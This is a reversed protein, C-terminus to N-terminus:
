WLALESCQQSWFKERGAQDLKPCDSVTHGVEKCNYCTIKGREIETQTFAVGAGAAADGSAADHTNEPKFQELLKLARSMTTPYADKDM